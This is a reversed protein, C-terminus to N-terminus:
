AKILSAKEETLDSAIDVTQRGTLRSIVLAMCGLQNYGFPKCIGDYIAKDYRIMLAVALDFDTMKAGAEDYFPQITDILDQPVAAMGEASVEVPSNVAGHNHAVVEGTARRFTASIFNSLTKDLVHFNDIQKELLRDHKILQSNIEGLKQADMGVKLLFAIIMVGAVICSGIELSIESIMPESIGENARDM